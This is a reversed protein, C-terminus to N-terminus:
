LAAVLGLMGVIVIWWVDGRMRVAAGTFNTGSGSGGTATPFRATSSGVVVGTSGGANSVVTGDVTTVQGQTLTLGLESVVVSGGSSTATYVKGGVTVLAVPPPTIMPPQYVGSISSFALTSTVDNAPNVLVVGSGNPAESLVMGNNLTIPAGGVSFLTGSVMVSTASPQGNHGEGLVATATVRSGDPMTLVAGATPTPAGGPGGIPAPVNITSPAGGGPQTIVIHGADPMTIVTGPSITVPPGNPAVPRNPGM